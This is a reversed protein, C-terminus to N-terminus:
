EAVAARISAFHKAASQFVVGDILQEVTVSGGFAPMSARRDLAAEDLGDLFAILGAAQKEILDLAEAKTCDRHAASDENAMANVDDM